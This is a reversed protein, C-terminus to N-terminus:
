ETKTSIDKTTTTSIESSSHQQLTELLRTAVVIQVQNINM